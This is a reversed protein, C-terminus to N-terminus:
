GSPPHDGALDGVPQARVAQRPAGVQATAPAAAPVEQPTGATM